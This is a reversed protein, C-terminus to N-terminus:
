GGTTAKGTAGGYTSGVRVDDAYVTGTGGDNWLYFRRYADTVSLNTNVTAAQAGNLWVTASGATLQNLQLEVCYWKGLVVSNNATSLNTRTNAGNWLYIDLGKARADYDIEWANRGGSNRGQAIVTSVSLASPQFCFRSYSQTQAGGSLDAYLAASQANTADNLSAATTGSNVVTNQATTTGTGVKTFATLGNEFGDQLFVGSTSTGNGSLAATHPSGTANDAVQLTAARAGTAKPAFTLTVTCSGGAALSGTPAPCNNTQTFDTPNTGALTIGSITLSANGSNTVQVTQSASTGSVLTDPFVASTPSLTVAPAAPVVATGTLAVSNPSSPADSVISINAQSTGAVTPRYTVTVACTGQSALTAPAVPCTNTQAFHAANTGTMSISSITLPASGTNRLTVSQGASTTNVAQSSFTLSSPDLGVGSVPLAGAGAGVPGSYTDAVRVDDAYVIGTGGDHLVWLRGYAPGSLDTDVSGMSTGNLWVQGHGTTAQNLQVEMCYWRNPLVTKAASSTLSRTRAGNWFYTDLAQTGANYDVEWVASGNTDRGQAVITSAAANSLQFCLRSYTSTHGGGALPASVDSYTGAAPNNLSAASTGSNVVSTQTTTTGTGDVAWPALGNEFGDELFTGSTVAGTGSISSTHPSGTANDAVQLSATRTGSAVPTFTVNVACNAGAPLTAPSAPCNSTQGFDGANAGSLSIGTITLPASGSNTVTVATPASSQGIGQSGFVVTSPSLTVAPAPTSSGAGTLAVLVPSASGNSSVSLNASSSAASHPTFSVNATCSAGVALTTPSSPCNDSSVFDAASTGTVAISNITLPGTGNNTVTVPQSASSQGVVTSPFTLSTPDVQVSPTPTPSAAQGVPGNYGSSVQADDMYVTGAAGNNWLYLRSYPNAASFDADLSGVSTGDLWIQLHGSAAENLQVEACQWHDPQVINATSAVNSRTRAGNWAYVDFAKRGPDYYVQWMPNGATDRGEALLPTGNLGSALRFCFRTYTSAQGGGQLDAHLGAYSSTSSNVLSAAQSGSNVVTKEATATGPGDTGWNGLGSEFGDSLYVGSTLTGTGTVSLRHPSGAANDNVTVVASRNGSVTPVFSVTITCSAGAALASPAIPCTSTQSFQTPDTGTMGISSISLAAAGTNSLTVTQPQSTTGVLQGGFSLSGPSLLVGPASASTSGGYLNGQLADRWNRQWWEYGVLGQFEGATNAHDFTPHLGDRLLQPHNKFFTYQDPGRKVQPRDSYLQDIQQNLTAANTALWGNNSSGWPIKPVIPIQGRGIVDDVLGLLNSYWTQVFATSLAAGQNADNSGYAIGVYRGGFPALLAARNDYAWQMNMGGEGGNLILPQQDPRQATILSALPGGNWSSGDIDRHNLAEATISDGLILTDDTRGGAANHVDMQMTVDDNPATGNVATVRLRVWNYTSLDVPHERAHFTNGTVTTLVTWGSTPAAGGGPATSGEITYDRPESAVPNANWYDLSVDNHWALVDSKKSAAPVGSLDYALWQPTTAPATVSRWLTSYDADNAYSPNYGTTSSAFAPVGRSIIPMPTVGTSSPAVAPNNMVQSPTQVVTGQGSRSQLWDLFSNFITPTTSYTDCSPDCLSHFVLQVWGGGNNEAQTVYSQITALADTDRIDPPTLTLMPNAPPITEATPCTPCISSRIGGVTRGTTYGCGSVVQNVTSSSTSGFPYAFATVPSFGQNLLNQRDDCIEHQQQSATLTAVDAHTLTHGGIENGDSALAHLDAWTMHTGPQDSTLGSNTYFVGRMGHNLLPDRAAMQDARDDDFGLTVITKPTVAAKAPATLAPLVAVLALIIAGVLPLAVVRRGLSSSPAEAGGRRPRASRSRAREHRATGLM